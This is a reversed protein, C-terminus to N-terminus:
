RHMLDTALLLQAMMTRVDEEKVVDRTAFFKLLSGYKAYKMVLSISIVGAFLNESKYVELLSVINECQNLKRLFKIESFVSTLTSDCENVNM